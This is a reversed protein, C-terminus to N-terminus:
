VGVKLFILKFAFAIRYRDIARLNSVLRLNTKLSSGYREYCLVFNRGVPSQVRAYYFRNGLLSVFLSLIALIVSQLSTLFVDVCNTM